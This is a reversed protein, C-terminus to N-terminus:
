EPESPSAVSAHVISDYVAVAWRRASQRLWAVDKLELNVSCVRIPRQRALEHLRELARKLLAGNFPAYLFFVSGELSRAAVDAHEFVVDNLGLSAAWARAREVLPAQLEIGRAQAGTLLHVLVVVRGLGAGLDVFQDEPRLQAEAVVTLIEDVGCPLYPVAGRPLEPIDPPAEPIELAADLWIDRADPAVHLLRTLLAEGRLAGAVIERKLSASKSILTCFM